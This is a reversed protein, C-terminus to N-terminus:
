YFRIKNHNILSLSANVITECCRYNMNLRFIEAEKYVQTFMRCVDPKAGRFGYISQDDDGVVFINRNKQALMNILRLQVPSVDQFEDVM